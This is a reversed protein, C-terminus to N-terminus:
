VPTELYIINSEELLIETAKKCLFQVQREKLLEPGNKKLKKSSGDGEFPYLMELFHEINM